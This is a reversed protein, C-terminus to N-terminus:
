VIGFIEEIKTSLWCIEIIGLKYIDDLLSTYELISFSM